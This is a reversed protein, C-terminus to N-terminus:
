GIAILVALRRLRRRNLRSLRSIQKGDAAFPDNHATNGL